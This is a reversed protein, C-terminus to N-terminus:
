VVTKLDQYEGFVDKFVATIEGFTAQARAAEIIFPMMNESGEAARRLRQLAEEWRKPDRTGRVEKLRELQRDIMKEDPQYLQLYDWPNAEDKLRYKNKRVIVKEGKEVAKQEELFWKLIERLVYGSEVAKIAGGMDEVKKMESVVCKEIENTLYEVYYSGALPDVTRTINTEEALIQLTGLALSHSKESPIAYVEDYCPHPTGQAGGLASAIAGCAARVLNLEPEEAQLNNPNAESTFRLSCSKPSKAGFREKMMKAWLRRAARFKSAEELIQLNSAFFISMKPAFDDINMGRALAKEIYCIANSITYAVEQIPNAGGESLNIAKLNIPYYRPANRVCFEILDVSLRVGGELNLVTTGKHVAALPDNSIAGRLKKPDMGLNEMAVWAFAIVVAALTEENCSFSAQDMPLGSFLIELDKVTDIALGVRGVEDEARTDDSDLGMHTPLDPLVSFARQGTEWLFKWRKQTDEASGFGSFLSYQWPQHRYMEPYPGRTFPYEGPFGIDGLYDVDQIDAPTYVAKIEINGPMFYNRSKNVGHKEIWRQEEEKVKKILDDTYTVTKGM